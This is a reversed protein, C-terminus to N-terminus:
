TKGRKYKGRWERIKKHDGSLLVKPVRWAARKKSSLITKRHKRIRKNGGVGLSQRALTRILSPLSPPTFIEPRTYVPYSGKIEELSERKGLFGPLYRSVAEILVLAPLEGGSLVYDGISIEEDAIHEAVREDVGEYRGCILILQRYKLLRKATKVDLKKGRTSFLIVRSGQRKIRSVAKFIPEVKLVMGPGGGFPSDDVTRRPKRRAKVHKAEVFDRLDHVRIDITKKNLARKILSERLYSDFIKPFITIIDFRM